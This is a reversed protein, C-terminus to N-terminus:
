ALELSYEDVDAELLSIQQDLPKYEFKMRQLRQRLTKLKFLLWDIEYTYRKRWVFSRLYRRQRCLWGSPNEVYIADVYGDPPIRVKLTEVYIAGVHRRKTIFLRLRHCVLYYRDKRTEVCSVYDGIIDLMIQEHERNLYKGLYTRM